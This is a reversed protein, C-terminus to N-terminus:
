EFPRKEIRRHQPNDVGQKGPNSDDIMGSVVARALVQRCTLAACASSL